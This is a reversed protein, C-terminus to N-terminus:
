DERKFKEMEEETIVPHHRKKKNKKNNELHMKVYFNLFLLLIAGNLVSNFLWAGIGNCGGKMFHLLLVGVHCALNCGLLVMHCNVVFPFCASPLGIATWFRYGYVVSYALTALLIALVQFSQSFELWLFSMFISISNNFLQFFALKRLQLITFFTRFMHLFRSLYYMYSWFFVRGSPRTGLPFCLLWQFPTKSRRWFWRTEQIEAATSLLIGAFITVSILAMSLSHVAPIPGLPVVRGRRLLIALFLHVFACFGLYFVISSFLFSWTSGWSQSHSWRFNVISPHESLYYNLTQFVADMM